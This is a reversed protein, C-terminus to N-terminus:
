KKIRDLEKVLRRVEADSVSNRIREITKHDFLNSFSLRKSEYYENLLSHIKEEENMSLMYDYDPNSENFVEWISELITEEVTM